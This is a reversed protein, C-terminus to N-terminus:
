KKGGRRGRRGRSGRRKGDKSDADDEGGEVAEGDAADATPSAAPAPGADDMDYGGTRTTEFTLQTAEEVPVHPAPIPSDGAPVEDKDAGRGRGRGGRKAAKPLAEEAVSPPTVPVDTEIAAPRDVRL